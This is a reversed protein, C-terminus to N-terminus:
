KLRPYERKLIPDIAAKCQSDNWNYRKKMDNYLSQKTKSVSAVSRITADIEIWNIPDMNRSKRKMSFNYVRKSKLAVTKKPILFKIEIFVSM